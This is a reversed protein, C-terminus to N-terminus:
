AQYFALNKFYCTAGSIDIKVINEARNASHNVLFDLKYWSGSTIVNVKNGSADYSSFYTGKSDSDTWNFGNFNVWSWGAWTTHFFKGEGNDSEVFIEFTLHNYNRYFFEKEGTADYVDKFVVNGNENEEFSAKSTAKIVEVDDKTTKEISVGSTESAFGLPDANFTDFLWENGFRLNRLYVTHNSEYLNLFVDELKFQVGNDEKRVLLSFTYWNNQNMKYVQTGNEYVRIFDSVGQIGNDEVYDTRFWSSVGTTCIINDTSTQGYLFEFSLHTYNDFFSDTELFAGKFNIKGIGGAEIVESGALTTNTLSLTDDGTVFGDKYKYAKYTAEYTENGSVKAIEKDWGDFKYVYNEDAEKSPTSPVEVEDGLNYIKSSIVEGENKFTITFKEKSADFLAFYTTDATIKQNDIDIVEGDETLGWGKFDYTYGNSKEKTPISGDYSPSAGYEVNEDTELITDGNKWVVTYKNIEWIANYTENKTVTSSVEKDWSVFTYGLKSFNTPPVIQDGYHLNQIVNNEGNNLVFTITYDKYNSIFKAYADIDKTANAFSVENDGGVQDVWKDFTYTYTEDEEKVPDAPYSPLSGELFTTQKIITTGTEDYFTATFTKPTSSSCGSLGILVALSTLSTFLNKKM